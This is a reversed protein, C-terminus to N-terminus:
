CWYTVPDTLVIERVPCGDASLRHRLMFNGSHIDNAEFGFETHFNAHLKDKIHEAESYALTHKELREMIAYPIGLCTGMEYVIPMWDCRFNREICKELYKTSGDAGKPFIKIVKTVDFPHPVVFSFYGAGLPKVRLKNPKAYWLTSETDLTRMNEPTPEFGWRMQSRSHETQCARFALISDQIFSRLNQFSM